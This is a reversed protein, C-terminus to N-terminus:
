EREKKRRLNVEIEIRKSEMNQKEETEQDIFSDEEWECGTCQWHINRTAHLYVCLGGHICGAECVCLTHECDCMCHQEGMCVFVYVCICTREYSQNRALEFYWLILVCVSKFMQKMIMKDFRWYNPRRARKIIM